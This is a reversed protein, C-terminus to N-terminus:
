ICVKTPRMVQDQAHQWFLTVEFSNSDQDQLASESFLRPALLHQLNTETGLVSCFFQKLRHNSISYGKPVSPISFPSKKRKTKAELISKQPPLPLRTNFYLLQLYLRGPSPQFQIEAHGYQEYAGGMAYSCPHM